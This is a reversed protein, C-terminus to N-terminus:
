SKAQIIKEIEELIERQIEADIGDWWGSFGKRGLLLNIIKNAIM